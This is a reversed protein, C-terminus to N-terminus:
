PAVGRRWHVLLESAEHLDESDGRVVV